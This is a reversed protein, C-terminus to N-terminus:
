GCSPALLLGRPREPHSQEGVGKLPRLPRTCRRVCAKLPLSTCVARGYHLSASVAFTSRPMSMAITISAAARANGPAFTSRCNLLSTIGDVGREYVAVLLAEKAPFHVYITVGVHRAIDRLHGRLRWRRFM